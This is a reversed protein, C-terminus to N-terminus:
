RPRGLYYRIYKERHKEKHSDVEEKQEGKLVRVQELLAKADKEVADLYRDLRNEPVDEDNTAKGNDGVGGKLMPNNKAWDWRPNAAGDGENVTHGARRAM